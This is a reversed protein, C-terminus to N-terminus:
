AESRPALEATKRVFSELKALASGSDISRQALQVGAGLTEAKGSVVLAAAANLLILARRPGDEGELVRRAIEANREPPGGEVASREARELGVEEPTVVYSRM